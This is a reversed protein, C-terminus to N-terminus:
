RSMGNNFFDIARQTHISMQSDTPWDWHGVVDNSSGFGKGGGTKKFMPGSVLDWNHPHHDRRSRRIMQRWGKGPKKFELHKMVSLESKLVKFSVIDVDGKFQQTARLSAVGRNQSVYFGPGFDNDSNFYRSDIGNKRILAANEKSTGHYFTVYDDAREARQPYGLATEYGHATKEQHPEVAQSETEQHPEPSIAFFDRTRNEVGRADARSPAFAGALVCLILFWLRLM